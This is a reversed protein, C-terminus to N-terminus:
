GERSTLVHDSLQLNGPSAANQDDHHAGTDGRDADDITALVVRGCSDELSRVADPRMGEDTVVVAASELPAITCMGTLNWKSHDALVVLENTSRVFAKNTEAEALNPTTLGGGHSLGHVGLLVTDLHLQDIIQVAFPGVLADSRTWSGGVLLVTRDPSPYRNLYTAINTSNTVVTLGPIDALFKAAQYTTTGASIGIATGPRVLTAAARGIATKEALNERSKADFGPEHARRGDRLTAGGHVKECLGQEELSELDRRVTMESVGLEGAVDAVRVSGHLRLQSAIIAQRRVALARARGTQGSDEPSRLRPQRDPM